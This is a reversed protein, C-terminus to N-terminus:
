IRNTLLSVIEEFVALNPPILHFARRGLIRFTHRRQRRMEIGPTM